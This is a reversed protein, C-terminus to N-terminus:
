HGNVPIEGMTLEVVLRKQGGIYFNLEYKARQQPHFAVGSAASDRHNSFTSMELAPFGAKKMESKFRGAILNALAGCADLMADKSLEDVRPYRLSQLLFPLYKQEIFVVLAGLAKDEDMDRSTLYYNVASIYTPGEFKELGFVRMRGRYEIIEQKQIVPPKSFRVYGREKLLASVAESLVAVLETLQDDQNFEAM